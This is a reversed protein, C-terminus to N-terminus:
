TDSLWMPKKIINSTANKNELPVADGFWKQIDTSCTKKSSSLSDAVHYKLSSKGKYSKSKHDSCYIYTSYIELWILLNFLKM